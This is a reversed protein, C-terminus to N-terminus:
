LACKLYGLICLKKSRVVFVRILSRPHAPQDSDEIPACTLIYSQSELKRVTSENIETPSVSDFDAVAQKYGGSKVYLRGADDSYVQSAGQILRKYARMGM